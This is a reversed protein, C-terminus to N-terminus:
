YFCIKHSGNHDNGAPFQSGKEIRQQRVDHQDGEEPKCAEKGPEVPVPVDEEPTFGAHICEKPYGIPRQEEKDGCQGHSQNRLFSVATGDFQDEGLRNGVHLEYPSFEQRDKEQDAYGECEGQGIVNGDGRDTWDVVPCGPCTVQSRQQHTGRIDTDTNKGAAEGGVLDDGEQERQQDPDEKMKKKAHDRTIEGPDQPIDDVPEADGAMVLGYCPPYNVRLVEDKEEGHDEQSKKTRLCHQYASVQTTILLIQM